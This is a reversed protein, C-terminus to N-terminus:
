QTAPPPNDRGVSTFGFERLELRQLRLGHEGFIRLDEKEHKDFKDGLTKELSRFRGSLWWGSGSAAVIITTIISLTQFDLPM